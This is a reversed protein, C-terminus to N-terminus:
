SRRVHLRLTAAVLAIAICGVLISALTGIDMGVGDGPPRLGSLLVEGQTPRYRWADGRDSWYAIKGNGLLVLHYAYRLPNVVSLWSALGPMRDIPILVGSFAIQPVLLLVITGVAAESQRWLASVFLGISVGVWGTLTAAMALEAASVQAEGGALYATVTSLALCQVAVLGALVVSKSAVWASTSLGLLREHRWVIGDSILERVSASMGFWLCSLTLLFYFTGTPAPFVLAMIAAVALPQATLVTLGTQDRLKVKAYRRALTTFQSLWSPGESPSPPPPPEILVPLYNQRVTVWKAGHASTRFTEAWEEPTQEPLRDFIDAPESVAFHRVADPVPGFFALRGGPALVLLQDVQSLLSPTLDHTVVFLVRGQDAIRRALRAIDAASRPDLGSTPEDLFLIRTDDSLVEQAINVRKRQGGSIGRREPNGIRSTRIHALGLVDLVRTVRAEHQAHTERPFRLRCAAFLSEEVTLEPLVIDDQPVEGALSPMRALLEGLDAEDLSVSGSDRLGKLAHLLTTKGAGSPGVVAIVEGALATFSVHDLLVKDGVKRVLDRAHLAFPAAPSEIRLEDKERILTYGGVRLPTHEEFPASTLSVGDMVVSREGASIVRWGGPTRVLEAHIPEIRPDPLVLECGKWFGIRVRDGELRMSAVPKKPTVAAAATVPDVGVAVLADATGQATSVTTALGKMLAGLLAALDTEEWPRERITAGLTHMGGRIGQEITDASRQTRRALVELAVTLARPPLPRVAALLAGGVDREETEEPPPNGDRAPGLGGVMASHTVERNRRTLTVALARSFMADLAPDRALMDALRSVSWRLCVSPDAARIDASVPKDELFSMEGFVEGPGIRALVTEPSTRRDVVEFVGDLAFFVSTPPEGRRLLTAGDPVEVRDARAELRAWAADSFRDRFTPM